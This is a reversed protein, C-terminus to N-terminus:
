RFLWLQSYLQLMFCSGVAPLAVRATGGLRRSEQYMAMWGTAISIMFCSSRCRCLLVEEGM